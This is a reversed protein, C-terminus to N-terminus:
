QSTRKYTQNDQVYQPLVHWKDRKSGRMQKIRVLDDAITEDYFVGEIHRAGNRTCIVIFVISPNVHTDFTGELHSMDPLPADDALPYKYDTM